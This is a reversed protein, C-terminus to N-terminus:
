SRMTGTVPTSCRRTVAIMVTESTASSGTFRNARVGRATTSPLPQLNATKLHQIELGLPADSVIEEWSDCLRISSEWVTKCPHVLCVGGTAQIWPLLLRPLTQRGRKSTTPRTWSSVVVPCHSLCASNFLHKNQRYEGTGSSLM